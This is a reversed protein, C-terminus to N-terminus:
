RKCQGVLAMLTAGYCSSLPVQETRAFCWYVAGFLAVMALLIYWVEKEFPWYVANWNQLLRPKHSLIGFKEEMLLTTFDIVEERKNYITISGM